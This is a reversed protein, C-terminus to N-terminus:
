SGLVSLAGAVFRHAPGQALIALGLVVPLAATAAAFILRRRKSAMREQRSKAYSLTGLVPLGTVERLERYDGFVPNLQQLLFALASGAGIAVLLLGSLLLTRNPGVPNLSALPPDIVRFQLADGAQEVEGTIHLSERRKLLEEYQARTVAYDRNMANLQREVEPITNVRQTLDNVAKQQQEVKANLTAIDVEAESLGMRMRQYVPNLELGPPRAELRGPAAQAVPPRPASTRAQAQLSAIRERLAVVDPYDDKYRLLLTSLERMYGAILADDVSPTDGLGGSASPVVVGFQPEEGDVQKQYEAKRENALQLEARTEDLQKRAAQLRTFYDGTEQPMQGLNEKKFSALREEAESLRREYEAIQQDIFTSAAGSDSRREGVADQFINDLLTKVVAEATERKSDEFSIRFINEGGEKTLTVRRALDAIRREHEAQSQQARGNLEEIIRETKELQPRSLLARTLINIETTTDAPIALGGVVRKIMSQADIYFRTDARYVDPLAYVVIWGIACVGWSLMLAPWRYRWMGYIVSMAGAVFDEIQSRGGSLLHGSNSRGSPQREAAM